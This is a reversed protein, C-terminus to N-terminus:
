KKKPPDPLGPFLDLQRPRAKGGQIVRLLGRGNPLARSTEETVRDALPKRIPKEGVPESLCADMFEELTWIHDTVGAQM